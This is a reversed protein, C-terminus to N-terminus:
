PTSIRLFFALRFTAGRAFGAMGMGTGFMMPAMGPMVATAEIIIFPMNLFCDTGGMLSSMSMARSDPTFSTQQWIVTSTSPTLCFFRMSPM